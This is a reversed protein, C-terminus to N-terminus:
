AGGLRSGIQFVILAAIYALSTMYVFTFIPWRWSNTERRIVMLTAACQACLAFFVMISLAVAVTFVPRGDPWKANQLSAQLGSDSEEVDGGLSYITGLTAVVVERAPFSAIVGVGIKWDWGLPKVAPEIVKGFRGLISREMLAANEENLQEQITGQEEELAPKAEDTAQEIKNEVDSLSRQLAIAKTHDAPFYAAGWVVVTTLVILSGARGVFSQARELVRQGVVRWSPWKYSPLEMVFPPTQGPFLFKKLLWAIPIAVVAGICQMVFLVIGQLDLWGGLYKIPPVFAFTMLFYVPFRASCSMLPAVLITVMRDRRNEIVRTAMIGPVACAFSSMLPLFSKGSLGLKTMLKDMLFAARAMYGCDEMIAIFFFLLLIQPLFVVVAGVGAFVGDILLSRLPGFPLLNGLYEAAAGHVSEVGKTLVQAWNCIAQFILFMILLFLAVGWFRHTVVHDIRDSATVRSENSREVVEKLQQRIWGYRLKTEIMPLKCGAALLRARAAALDQSLSPISRQLQDEGAGQVDILLREVFPSPLSQNKEALKREISECEEYFEAPFLRLSPAPGSQRLDHVAQKVADIGQRQHASTTVIKVGLRDVLKERDIKVGSEGIRDWMNLVLVVPIGLDRVQTFLYLNREINTADVIVVVADLKPSDAQRSLLVDVSVLEDASRASLSYTGPLDIVTVQDDHFRYSGLKKEVTVGPFNGVRANMGCLANFLSSKGTNPNGVLAITTSSLTSTTPDTTQGSSTM